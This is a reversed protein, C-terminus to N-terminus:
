VIVKWELTPYLKKFNKECLRICKKIDKCATFYTVRTNEGPSDELILGFWRDGNEVDPDPCVVVLVEKDDIKYKM